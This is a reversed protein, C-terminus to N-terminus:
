PQLWGKDTYYFGDQQLSYHVDTSAQVQGIRASSKVPRSYYYAGATAKVTNTTSPEPNPTVIPRDMENIKYTVDQRFQLFGAEAGDRNCWMAPCLKGTIQNHMIIHDTKISWHDCIWACLLVASQYTGQKFCWGESMPDCSKNGVKHSCIEVSICNQHGAVGAHDMSLKGKYTAPGWDKVKCESKKGCASGVSCRTYHTEPNVMEWIGAAGVLYHANSGYEAYAKYTSLQGAASDTTGGTFHVVLFEPRYKGWAAVNKTLKYMTSISPRAVSM